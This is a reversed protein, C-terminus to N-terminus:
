SVLRIKHAVKGRMIRNKVFANKYVSKLIYELWGNNALKTVSMTVHYVQQDFVARDTINEVYNM